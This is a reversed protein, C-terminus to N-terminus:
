KRRPRTAAHSIPAPPRQPHGRPDGTHGLPDFDLGPAHSWLAIPRYRSRGPEAAARAAPAAAAIGTRRAISRRDRPRTRGAPRRKVEDGLAAASTSNLPEPVRDRKRRAVNRAAARCGGRRALVSSAPRRARAMRCGNATATTDDVELGIGVALGLGLKYAAPQTEYERAVIQHERRQRIRDHHRRRRHTRACRAQAHQHRRDLLLEFTGCGTGLRDCGVKRACKKTM